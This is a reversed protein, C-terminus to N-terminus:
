EWDFKHMLEKYYDIKGKLKKDEKKTGAYKLWDLEDDYLHILIFARIQACLKETLEIAKTKTDM